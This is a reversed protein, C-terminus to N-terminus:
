DDASSREEGASLVDHAPRIRSAMPICPLYM